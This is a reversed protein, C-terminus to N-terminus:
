GPFTSFMVAFLAVVGLVIFMVYQRLRGTQVVRLSAGVSQTASAILNVFGDVVTEDFVRDWKSIVVMAKAAGHLIRDFVAGDFWACFAAVKHAPKMFLADYLDDFHWKNSLFGHVGALQRKIEDVNVVNTGYLIYAILAGSLAAILAWTGAE